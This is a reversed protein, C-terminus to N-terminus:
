PLNFFPFALSRPLKVIILILGLTEKKERTKKQSTKKTIVLRLIDTSLFTPIYNPLLLRDCSVPIHAQGGVVHGTILLKWIRAMDLFLFTREM